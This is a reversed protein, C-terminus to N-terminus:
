RLANFVLIIGLIIAMISWIYGRFNLRGYDPAPLPRKIVYYLEYFGVILFIIGVILILYKNM